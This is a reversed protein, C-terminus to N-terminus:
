FIWILSRSVTESYRRENFDLACDQSLVPEAFAGLSSFCIYSNCMACMIGYMM